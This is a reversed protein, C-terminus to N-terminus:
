RWAQCRSCINRLGPRKPSCQSAQARAARASGGSGVRLRWAVAAAARARASRRRGTQTPCRRRYTSFFPSPTTLVVPAEAPFIFSFTMKTKLKKIPSLVHLGVPSGRRDGVTKHRSALPGAFAVSDAGPRGRRCRAGGAWCWALPAAAPRIPTGRAGWGGGTALAKLGREVQIDGLEQVGEM